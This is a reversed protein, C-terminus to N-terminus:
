KNESLYAQLIIVASTVDIQIKKRRDKKKVGGSIMSRMAEKSTGYEDQLAVPIHPFLKKFRNVFAQVHHANESLSGDSQTPWGVVLTEVSEKQLYDKLFDELEHTKVGTLPTAIIQLPDTVAIGTRKTGFDICLLRGM